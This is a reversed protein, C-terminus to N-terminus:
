SIRSANRQGGFFALLMPELGSVGTITQDPIVM